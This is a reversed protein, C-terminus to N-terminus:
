RVLTTRDWAVCMVLGGVLDANNLSYGTAPLNDHHPLLDVERRAGAVLVSAAEVGAAAGAQQQAPVSSAKSEDDEQEQRTAALAAFAEATRHTRMYMWSPRDTLVVHMAYIGVCGLAGCM